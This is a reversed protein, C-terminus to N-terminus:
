ASKRRKNVLAFATLGFGILTLSTPEPIVPVILTKDKYVQLSSNDQIEYDWQFAWTVDGTIPGLNNNLDYGPITALRGLTGGPGAFAAEAFTAPPQIIGEQIGFLGETQRVSDPGLFQVTDNGATGLLNFDSYQFLHFDLVGGSHNDVIITELIDASGPGQSGGTLIYSVTLTFQSNGYSTVLSNATNALITPASILNIPQATTNTGIRYQFWQQNLQNQGGITWSYMGAGSDLDISASTGFDSLIVPAATAQFLSMGSCIATCTILSLGSRTNGHKSQM